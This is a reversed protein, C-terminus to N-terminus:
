PLRANSCDTTDYGLRGMTTILLVIAMGWYVIGRLFMYTGLGQLVDGPIPIFSSIVNIGSHLLMVPIVSQHSKLYLWNLVFTLPILNFLYWGFTTNNYNM